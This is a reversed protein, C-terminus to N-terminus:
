MLTHEVLIKLGIGMLIVGGLIRIRVGFRQGVRAGILMACATMGATVVGIVVAPYWISVKLLALSLGVALADISTAISLVVLSLGRTPDPVKAEEEKSGLADVIAKGGIAALLVFAVWHDWAEIYQSLGRGALWGVVPMLAQFLGFHFSFRFLQRADVRGLM